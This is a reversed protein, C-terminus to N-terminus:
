RGLAYGLSFQFADATIAHARINYGIFVRRDAVPLYYRVGATEFFPTRTDGSYFPDHFIYYGFSVHAALNKYRTEHHAVVSLGHPSQLKINPRGQLTEWYFIDDAIPAYMYEMGVGSAFKPSYSYMLAANFTACHHRRFTGTRYRPDTAPVKYWCYNWEPLIVRPLWSAAFDGYFHKHYDVRGERRKKMWAFPRRWATDARFTYVARLGVDLPNVGINPESTRGNSYHHFNAQAGVTWHPSVKVDAYFGLGVLISFRGGILENEPNKIPNYPTTAVGVGQEMRYGVEFRNGSALPREMAGYPTIMQGMSSPFPYLPSSYPIVPSGEQRHLPAYTFDSVLLGGEFRPLGYMADDDSAAVANARWTVCAHAITAYRSGTLLNAVVSNHPLVYGGNVGISVGVVGRPQSDPVFNEASVLSDAMVSMEATQQARGEEAAFLLLLLLGYLRLSISVSSQMM